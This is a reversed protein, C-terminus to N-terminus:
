RLVYKEIGEREDFVKTIIGQDELLKLASIVTDYIVVIGEKLIGSKEARKLESYIEVDSKPGDRLIEKILDIVGWKKM